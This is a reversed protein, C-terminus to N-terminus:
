AAPDQEHAKHYILITRDLYLEDTVVSMTRVLAGNILDLTDCIITDGDDYRVRAQRFKGTPIAYASLQEPHLYMRKKPTKIIGSFPTVHQDLVGDRDYWSLILDGTKEETFTADANIVLRLGATPEVADLLDHSTGYLWANMAPIHYTADVLALDSSTTTTAVLLWAGVVATNM